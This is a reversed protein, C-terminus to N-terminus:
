SPSLVLRPHGTGERAQAPSSLMEDKVLHRSHALFGDLFKSSM